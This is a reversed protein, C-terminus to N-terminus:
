RSQPVPIVRFKQTGSQAVATVGRRATVTWYITKGPVFQASVASPLSIKAEPTSMQYLATHDVESVTVDYTSAGAVPTWRLEVPPTVLDGAPSVTEVTASRYTEARSLRVNVSPERNEAVYGITLGMVIMAAAALRGPRLVSKRSAFPIVNWRQARARLDSAIAQVPAAEQPTTAGEAFNKWLLAETQCRACHAVHERETETLAEALRDISLCNPTPELERKWNLRPNSV